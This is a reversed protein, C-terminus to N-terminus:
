TAACWMVIATAARAGEVGSKRDAAAEAGENAAKETDTKAQIKGPDRLAETLDRIAVSMSLAKQEAKAQARDRKRAADATSPGLRESLPELAREVALAFIFVTGFASWDASVM